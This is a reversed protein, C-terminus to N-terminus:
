FQIICFRPSLLHVFVLSRHLESTARLYVWSKLCHKLMSEWQHLWLLRWLMFSSWALRRLITLRLRCLRQFDTMACVYVCMLLCYKIIYWCYLICHLQEMFYSLYYYLQLLSIYLLFTNKDLCENMNLM